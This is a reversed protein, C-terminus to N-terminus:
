VFSSALNCCGSPGNSIQFKGVLWEKSDFSYMPYGSGVCVFLGNGYKVDYLNGTFGSSIENWDTGNESYIIINSGVGVFKGNGFTMAEYGTKLKSAIGCFKWMATDASKYFWGNSASVIFIGDGFTLSKGKFSTSTLTRWVSNENSYYFIGEYTECCCYFINNVFIPSRYVRNANSSLGKVTEWKDMGNKLIYSFAYAGVCIFNGNGYAIGRVNNDTVSSTFPIESWIIADKSQYSKGNNCVCVFRGDGYAVYYKYSIRSSNLTASEEWTIGDFSRFVTGYPNITVFCPSITTNNWLQTAVNNIGGWISNVYKKTGNVNVCVMNPTKDLGGNFCSM